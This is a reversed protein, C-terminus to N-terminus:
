RTPGLLTKGTTADVVLRLGLPEDLSVTRTHEQALEICAQAGRSRVTLSLAVARPSEEAQVDFDYCEEVGGWFTVELSRDDASRTVATFQSVPEEPQDPAVTTPPEPKVTGSGVSGGTGGGGTVPEPEGLYTPDVAVQVLPNPSGEVAFLWAPVLLPEEGQWQLSLGLRAGTVTIPGGCAVPDMTDPVPEPCAMLPMPLPTHVLVDWAERASLVPYTDAERTRSIWGQGWQVARDSASVTTTLGVTPLGGTEPDVTLTVLGDAVTETATDPDLGAARVVGRARDRAAALDPDVTVTSSMGESSVTVDQAVNWSGGPGPRVDHGVAASVATWDADPDASVTHVPATSREGPLETALKYRPDAEGREAGFWSSLHLVPPEGGPGTGGVGEGPPDLLRVLALVLALVLLAVGLPLAYRRVASTTM